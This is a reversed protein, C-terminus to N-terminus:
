MCMGTLWESQRSFVIYLSGLGNRVFQNIIVSECTQYIRQHIIKLLEKLVHSMLSVLEYENYQRAHLKKPIAIFTPEQWEQLIGELFINWKIRFCDINHESILKQINLHMQHSGPTKNYKYRNLEEIEKCQKEEKIKAKTEKNLKKYEVLYRGKIKRRLDLLELINEKM